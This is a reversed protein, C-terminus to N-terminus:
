WESNNGGKRLPYLLTKSKLKDFVNSQQKLGIKIPKLKNNTKNLIPNKHKLEKKHNKNANKNNKDGNKNNHNKNKNNKMNDKKNKNNHKKNKNRNKNNNKNNNQQKKKRHELLLELNFKADKDKPNIKLAKKYEKIAQKYNKMMVDCNGANYFSKEKLKSDKISLYLAKAQKYKGLRYLSNARDFVAQPKDIKKYMQASLTYNKDYFAKNAQELYHWDLIGAKAQSAVFVLAFIRARPISFFALFLFLVSLGLPYVFLENYITIKKQYNVKKFHQKLIKNIDGNGFSAIEGFKAFKLINKNIKTVVVKGNSVFLDGNKTKIPAGKQTGVLIIYLNIGDTQLAKVDGGDSFVILNHIGLKKATIILNQFDTGKSQIYNENINRLLYKLTNKDTTYPSVLYTNNSFALISIEGNFKDIFQEIKHKAFDLRNPYVDSALMSRSVDLAIAVKPLHINSNLQKKDSVPRALAIVMCVYALALFIRKIKSSKKYAIIKENFNIKIKNGWFLVLLLLFLFMYPYLFSVM